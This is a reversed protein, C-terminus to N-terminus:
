KKNFNIETVAHTFIQCMQTATKIYRSFLIQRQNDNKFGKHLM